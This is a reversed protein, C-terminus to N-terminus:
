IPSGGAADALLRDVTTLVRESHKVTMDLLYASILRDEDFLAASGVRTSTDLALIKM